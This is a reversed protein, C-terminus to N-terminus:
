RISKSWQLWQKARSGNPYRSNRLQSRARFSTLWLEYSLIPSSIRVKLLGSNPLQTRVLDFGLPEAFIDFHLDLTKLNHFLMRVTKLWTSCKHHRHSFNLYNALSVQYLLNNPHFPFHKPSSLLEEIPLLSSVHLHHILVIILELLCSKMFCLSSFFFDESSWPDTVHHPLGRHNFTLTEAQAFSEQVQPLLLFWTREWSLSLRLFM